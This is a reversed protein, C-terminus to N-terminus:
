DRYFIRSVRASIGTLIEYPITEIAEAIISVTLDKGFVIVESGEVCNINTVDIMLMDMCISGIIPAKQGNVLLYGVGRGWKRSIGDAYGIPITAVKTPKDAVFRRVYGVSEGAQIVRIQSIVSKLTGVNELYMQEHAENAVGYLGIGLRVMDFQAEPYNSIGSTNCIHRITSINLEKMLFSSDREFDAIQKLTFDRHETIDSSALHSLISKIELRKTSKLIEVLEPLMATDFGLRNM